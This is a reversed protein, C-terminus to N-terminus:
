SLGLHVQLEGSCFQRRAPVNQQECWFDSEDWLEHVATAPTESSPDQLVVAAAPVAFAQTGPLATQIRILGQQHHSGTRCHEHRQIWESKHNQILLM